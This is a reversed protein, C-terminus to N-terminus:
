NGDFLTCTQIHCFRNHKTVYVDNDFEEDKLQFVKGKWKAPHVSLSFCKKDVDELVTREKTIEDTEKKADTTEQSLMEVEQHDSDNVSVNDTPVSATVEKASVQDNEECHSINGLEQPFNDTELDHNIMELTRNGPSYSKSVLNERCSEADLTHDDYSKSIISQSEANNQTSGDEPNQIMGSLVLDLEATRPVNIDSNAFLSM